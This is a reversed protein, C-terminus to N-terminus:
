SCKLDGFNGPDPLCRSCESQDGLDCLVGFDFGMAVFHQDYGLYGIWRNWHCLSWLGSPCCSAFCFTYLM